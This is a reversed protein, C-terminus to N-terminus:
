PLPLYAGNQYALAGADANTHLSLLRAIVITHTARDILDEIRAACALPAGALLHAGNDSHWQAGAFRAEGQLGGKGAFRDAVAQHAAGLVQWGLVGGIALMAHASASRNICAIMMAPETSLASASTLTLGTRLGDQALTVVSVQGVVARMAMRFADPTPPDQLHASM